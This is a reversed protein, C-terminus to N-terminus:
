IFTRDEMRAVDTPDSLALYSNPRLVPNLKQLMGADVMEACLRDYEGTSGDCWVVRDPKTLAAVSAVWEIAGQHKVCAPAELAKGFHAPQNM